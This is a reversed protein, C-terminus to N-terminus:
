VAVGRLATPISSLPISLTEILDIVNRMLQEGSLTLRARREESIGFSRQKLCLDFQQTHTHTYVDGGVIDVWVPPLTHEGLPTEIDIDLYRISVSRVNRACVRVYPRIFAAIRRWAHVCICALSRRLSAAPSSFM